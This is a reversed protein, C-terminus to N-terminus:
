VRSEWGEIDTKIGNCCTVETESYVVPTGDENLERSYSEFKEVKPQKGCFPCPKLKPTDDYEGTLKVITSDEYAGSAAEVYSKDTSSLIITRGEANILAYATIQKM